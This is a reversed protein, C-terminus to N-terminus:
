WLAYAEPLSRGLPFTQKGEWLAELGPPVRYYYGGHEFKWREPLGRNQALRKRAMSRAGILSRQPSSRIPQSAASCTNSMRAYSQPAETLGSRTRLAWSACRKLRDDIASM